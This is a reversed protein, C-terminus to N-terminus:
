KDFGTHLHNNITKLKPNKDMYDIIENMSFIYDSKKFNYFINRVLELDEPYDVTFYYETNIIDKPAILKKVKYDSSHDHFFPITHELYLRNTTRELLNGLANTSILEAACGYPWGKRSSAYIFDHNNKENEKILSLCCNPDILPDDGGIRILYDLNYVKCCEYLRQAVNNLSGSYFNIKNKKCFEIIKKDNNDKSTAIVIEQTVIRKLREVQRLLMPKGHINLLAKGHLRTSSYRSQIIIGYNM